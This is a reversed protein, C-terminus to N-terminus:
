ARPPPGSAAPLSSTFVSWRQHLRIGAFFFVPFLLASVLVDVVYHYRLVMTALICGSSPALVWWFVGRHYKWASAIVLISMLAHGSPFADPMRWEIALLAQHMVGGILWGDLSAPRESYFWHPGIAPILPYFLYSGLLGLLLISSYENLRELDKQRYLVAGLGVMSVFYFWYCLHLVDVVPGPFRLFLADVNGFLLRDVDALLRDWRADEFPQLSPVLYHLERFASLVVVLPYWHRCFRWLPGGFRRHAHLIMAVMLTVAVHFALYVATGPPQFLLIVLSLIAIYAFVVLDFAHLHKRM